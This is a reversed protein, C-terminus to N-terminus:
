LVPDWIQTGMIICPGIDIRRGQPAHQITASPPSPSFGGGGEGKREGKFVRRPPHPPTPPTDRSRKGGPGWRRLLRKLRCGRRRWAGALLNAFFDYNSLNTHNKHSFAGPGQHATGWARPARAGLGRSVQGVPGQPRSGAVRVPQSGAALNKVEQRLGMPGPRLVSGYGGIRQGQPANSPKRLHLQVTGHSAPNGDESWCKLQQAPGRGQLGPWCAGSGQMGTLFELFAGTSMPEHFAQSTAGISKRRM